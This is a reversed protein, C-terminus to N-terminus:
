VVRCLWLVVVGSSLAMLMQVCIEQSFIYFAFMQLTSKKETGLLPCLLDALQTTDVRGFHQVFVKQAALMKYLTKQVEL